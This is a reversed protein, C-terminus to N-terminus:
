YQPPTFPDAPNPPVFTQVPIGSWQTSDALFGTNAWPAPPVSLRWKSSDFALIGLWILSFFIALVIWVGDKGLKAQVRLAIMIGVAAMAISGLFSFITGVGPIMSLVFTAGWTIPILWPNVDGLKAFVMSGYVPVWARWKGEVGAKEFVKMTFWSQLVYGVIAAIVLFVFLGAMLALFAYAGSEDYTNM